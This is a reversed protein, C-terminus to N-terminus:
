FIDFIRWNKAIEFEKEEENWEGWFRVITPRKGTLLAVSTATSLALNGSVLRLSLLVVREGKTVRKELVEYVEDFTNVSDLSNHFSLVEGLREALLKKYKETLDCELTVVLM